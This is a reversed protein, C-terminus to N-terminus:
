GESAFDKLLAGRPLAWRVWLPAAGLSLGWGGGGVRVACVSSNIKGGSRNREWHCRLM